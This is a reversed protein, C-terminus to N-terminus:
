GGDGQKDDVVAGTAADLTLPHAKDKGTFDFMNSLEGARDDFSSDGIRGDVLQARHVEPDLDARDAHSRHLEAQRVALDGAAAPAPWPRMPRRRGPRGPRPASLRTGRRTSIWRPDAVRRPRVLRRLRRLRSVIATNTGTRRSSSRTSRRSSSNRSTSRTPTAPTATRPRRRGEPLSVAPMNGAELAQNFDATDYQHNAQDATRAPDSHRSRQGLRRSTSRTRRRSAYYEFPEHHMSTTPSTSREGINPVTQRVRRFRHREHATPAFGGEFWGWTVDRENLLDGINKGTQLPRPQGATATHNKDVCDDYLRIPDSCPRARCVTGSSAVSSHSSNAVSCRASTNGSVLNIAGPRRRVSSTSYCNDSMAYHQALNWLGTVTNGDYYDM